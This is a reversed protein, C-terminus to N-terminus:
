RPQRRRLIGATAGFTALLAAAAILGWPSGADSSPRSTAVTVPQDTVVADPSSTPSPRSTETPAASSTPAPSDSPRDDSPADSGSTTTQAENGGTDRVSPAAVSRAPEPVPRPASRSPEADPVERVVAACERSPYGDIGCILGQDSRATFADLLVAAGSANNSVVACHVVVGSPPREGPPADASTGFDVVLAVRKKGDPREKTGCITDFSAATRPAISSRSAGESVAFRWGEVAGDAPRTSGAGV